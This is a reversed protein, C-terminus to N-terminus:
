IVCLFLAKNSLTFFSDIYFSAVALIEITGKFNPNDILHGFFFPYQKHFFYPKNNNASLLTQHVNCKLFDKGDDYIKSRLRDLNGVQFKNYIIFQAM